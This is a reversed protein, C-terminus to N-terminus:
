IYRLRDKVGGEGGLKFLDADGCGCVYVATSYHTVGKLQKYGENPKYVEQIIRSEIVKKYHLERNKKM